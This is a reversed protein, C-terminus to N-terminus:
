QRGPIGGGSGARRKDHGLLGYEGEWEDIQEVVRTLVDGILEAKAGAVFSDAECLLRAMKINGDNVAQQVEDFYDVQLDWALLTAKVIDRRLMCLMDKIDNADITNLTESM